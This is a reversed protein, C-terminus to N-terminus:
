VIDRSYENDLSRAARRVDRRAGLAIDANDLLNHRLMWERSGRGVLRLRLELENCRAGLPSRRAALEGAAATALRALEGGPLRGCGAAVAEGAGGPVPRAALGPQWGRGVRQQALAGGLAAAPPRPGPATRRRRTPQAGRAVAPRLWGRRSRRRAGRCRLPREGQGNVRRRPM